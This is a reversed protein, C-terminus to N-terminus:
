TAQRMASYSHIASFLLLSDRPNRWKKWLAAPDRVVAIPQNSFKLRREFDIEIVFALRRTVLQLVRKRGVRQAREFAAASLVAAHHIVEPVINFKVRINVARRPIRGARNHKVVIVQATEHVFGEESRVGVQKKLRQRVTRVSAAALLNLCWKLLQNGALMVNRHRMRNYIAALLDDHMVSPDLLLERFVPMNMHNRKERFKVADDGIFIDASESSLDAHLVIM